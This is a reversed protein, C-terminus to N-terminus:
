STTEREAIDAFTSLPLWSGKTNQGDTLLHPVWKSFKKWKNLHKTLIMHVSGTFVVTFEALEKCTLQHDEELLGRVVEIKDEATATSLRGAREDDEVSTRGEEFLRYWKRVTPEPPATNGFVKRLEKNMEPPKKGQLFQFKM